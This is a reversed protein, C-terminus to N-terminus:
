EDLRPQVQADAFGEAIHRLIRGTDSAVLRTEPAGEALLFQREDRVRGLGFELCADLITHFIPHLLAARIWIADSAGANSWVRGPHRARFTTVSM